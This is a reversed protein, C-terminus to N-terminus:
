GGAVALRKQTDFRALSMLLEGEDGLLFEGTVGELPGQDVSLKAVAPRTVNSPHRRLCADHDRLVVNKQALADCSQERLGSKIDDALRAIGLVKEAFCQCVTRVHRDYVDLHWGAVSGVAQTGRELQAPFQRVSADEHEGAIVFVVVRQIEDPLARLADAIQKLFPYAVDLREGLRDRTYGVSPTSEIRLDDPSHEPATAM